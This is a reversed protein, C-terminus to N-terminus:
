APAEWPDLVRVGPAAFDRVNRTVVTLGHVLATAAILADREGRRDPVHLPACALAIRPDIGLIRGAFQPIVTLHLWRGLAAGQGPDRRQTLLAGHEIELLTMVSLFWTEGDQARSWRLVNGDAREPRRLESVVNTDLLFM